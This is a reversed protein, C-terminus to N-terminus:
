PPNVKAGPAGIEKSINRTMPKPISHRKIPKKAWHASRRKLPGRPAGGIGVVRYGIHVVARRLVHEKDVFEGAFFAIALLAPHNQLATNRKM